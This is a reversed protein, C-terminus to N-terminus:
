NPSRVKSRGMVTTCILPQRGRPNSVSYAAPSLAPTLTYATELAADHRLAQHVQHDSPTLADEPCLLLWVLQRPAPLPHGVGEVPAPLLQVAPEEPFPQHRGDVSARGLWHERRLVVWNFVMRRTGPFGLVHM